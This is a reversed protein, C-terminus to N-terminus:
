RSFVGVTVSSGASRKTWEIVEARDFITYRGAKRFPIKRNATWEYITRPKVRLLTAVEIVTLFHPEDTVNVQQQQAM